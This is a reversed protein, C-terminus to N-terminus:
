LANCNPCYYVPKLMIRGWDLMGLPEDCNSPASISFRRTHFGWRRQLSASLEASPGWPPTEWWAVRGDRGLPYDAGTLPPKLLPQRSFAL